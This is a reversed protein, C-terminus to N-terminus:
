STGVPVLPWSVDSISIEPRNLKKLKHISENIYSKYHDFNWKNGSYTEKVMKNDSTVLSFDFSYNETEFWHFQGSSNSSGRYIKGSAWIGSCDVTNLPALFNETIENKNPIKNIM